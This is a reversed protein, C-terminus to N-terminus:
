GTGQLMFLKQLGVKQLKLHSKLFFDGSKQKEQILWQETETYTEPVHHKIQKLLLASYNISM